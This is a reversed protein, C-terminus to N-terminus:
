IARAYADPRVKRPDIEFSEEREGLIAPWDV